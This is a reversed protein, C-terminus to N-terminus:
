NKKKNVEEWKNRAARDSRPPNCLPGIKKWQNKHEKSLELLEDVM